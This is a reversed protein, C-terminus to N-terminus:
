LGAQARFGWSGLRPRERCSGNVICKSAPAGPDASKCGRWAQVRGAVQPVAASGFFSFRM